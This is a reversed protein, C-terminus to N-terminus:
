FLELDGLNYSWNNLQILEQKLNLGLNLDRLTLIPGFHGSFGLSYNLDTSTIVQPKFKECFENISAHIKQFGLNNSYIHESIRLEKFYKHKKIYGALYFDQDAKVEYEQLPNNEYRWLLYKTSKLTFMKNEEMKAVEYNSILEATQADSNNNEIAYHNKRSNFLGNFPNVPVVRIKLKDVKEWGMKLYGPLSQTNPTNFIFEDGKGKAIEIASLTLKKFVGKGQHKPHTATDVARYASFLQEGMQWKWRMFARVGIIAGDEIAVLILSKGFPNNIHKYNWVAYTKKSSSEGLSAKLVELIETVDQETAERILM